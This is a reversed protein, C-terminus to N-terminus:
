VFPRVYMNYVVDGNFALESEVAYVTYKTQPSEPEDASVAGAGAFLAAATLILIKLFRTM